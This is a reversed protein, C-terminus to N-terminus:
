ALDSRLSRVVRQANNLPKAPVHDTRHSKFGRFRTELVLRKVLSASCVTASSVPNSGTPAKVGRRKLLANCYVM